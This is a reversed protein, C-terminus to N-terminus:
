VNEKRKIRTICWKRSGGQATENSIKFFIVATSDDQLYDADICERYKNVFAPTFSFDLLYGTPVEIGKAKLFIPENFSCDNLLICNTAYEKKSYNIPYTNCKEKLQAALRKVTLQYEKNPQLDQFLIRARHYNPDFEM